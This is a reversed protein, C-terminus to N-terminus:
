RAGTFRVVVRNCFSVQRNGPAISLAFLKRFAATVFPVIRMAMPQCTSANSVRARAQSSKTKGAPTSVLRFVVLFSSNRTATSCRCPPKATSWKCREVKRWSFAPSRLGNERLLPKALVATAARRYPRESPMMMRELLLGDRAFEDDTTRSVRGEKWNIAKEM